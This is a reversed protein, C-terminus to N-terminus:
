CRSPSTAISRAPSDALVVGDVSWTGDPSRLLELSRADADLREM